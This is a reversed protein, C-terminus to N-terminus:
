EKVICTSLQVVKKGNGLRYSIEVTIQKVIDAKKETDQKIYVYDEIFVSKHYGTFKGNEYIDEEEDPLNERRDIGKGDYIEQYGAAKIKEIEQIAYKMAKDNNEINKNNLNTLVILNGIIAIFITLVFISIVIDIGTFGTEKKM